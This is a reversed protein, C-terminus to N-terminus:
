AADSIRERSAEGHEAHRGYLIQEEDQGGSVFVSSANLGDTRQECTVAGDDLALHLQRFDDEPSATL